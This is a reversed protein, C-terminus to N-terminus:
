TIEADFLAQNAGLIDSVIQAREARPLDLTAWLLLASEDMAGCIWSTAVERHSAGDRTADTLEVAVSTVEGRLHPLDLRCGLYPHEHVEEDPQPTTM